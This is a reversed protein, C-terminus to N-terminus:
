WMVRASFQIIRPSNAQTSLDQLGTSGNPIVDLPHNLANFFDATLRMSVKETFHITKFLSIDQNWAGPGRFFNRANWNLNEAIATQVVTGNALQQAVRNDFNPGIPKLVRQSRDVPVLNTLKAADVNSALRPDFDGRFWLRQKLGFINMELRDEAAISPDAFLYLGSNVGMWNGSRWDGIFAVQWGGVVHNLAGGFNGGFKKGKGFPLDYIGNWRVRHSPVSDSNAYGLRLRQDESLKPQGLIVLPEPVAFASGSGSSNISNSGFNYGGTDSTTMAHSFTYFWQFALGNSYRREVEAQLSNNNSYGNHRIPANCCGSTWNPNPRRLDANTPAQLGTRVQYNFVSEPDNWRWRQELGSGHNGIYSLRLATDKMVEREITFTWEQAMNDAWTTRDWPMFPQAAQSITVVGETNVKAQGLADTPSPRSNYAYNVNTGGQTAIENTFRLNLPVNTRSSQLIQSLPMTWYYIGYGSRIVWKDSLRFAVGLRPAFNNNDAPLLADPFGAERATKWTVGRAKYSALVAPPVGPLDEMRRDKPTIVEMKGIYNQLDLNLLRDYKESYPTWKDWRVGLDLTLRRSVKWSDQVYLGLEKQRFYFYGRNYQNSLFTPLGLLVGALGTGTRSVPLQSVPDFQASWNIGFTHSGQAQQLERVNNYESRGKFGFRISHKGKIWTTNNELQFGTLNQDSPNGADWCGGYFPGTACITPWGLAGFPNPFGLKDAWLTNDALTGAHNRSRDSSAQFENLLTPSFVHNWRGFISYVDTDQASTGGADTSGPPPFGFVGGFTKATQWSKTFRGSLNDKESFVHDGKATFTSTDNVRPYFTEFNSTIWPNAGANPGAPSASVGRMVEAYQSIMNRPITNNPFPTRTGDAGTTYPNYLTITESNTTTASSFDGNWIADTPAASRAFQAQRQRMGEYAVFWFTKNKILPGGASVGYENRILQPPKAAFDQRARARLGGFNNRHTEFVSGHIENTGSRTVLTVTAPRSYQAPSGATEIRYEQITDLGPQVQVIGGGFRNVLSIGDLLMDVSGVKLGNVRPNGGGEVGATLDFLNTVSRGNLPLQQIRVFDKTDSVQMGETAIVPAAGTVEVVTGVAGVEMAPDITVTQGVPVIIAAEWKKFGPAEVTLVYNGPSVAGYHYVGATNSEAMRAVGTKTNNLTTKASPIAARSGDLVTGQVVGNGSQAALPTCLLTCLLLSIGILRLTGFSM